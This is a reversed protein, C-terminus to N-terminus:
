PIPVLGAISAILRKFGVSEFAVDVVEEGDQIRSQLVLGEGWLPHQVRTGAAFRAQPAALGSSTGFSQAQSSPASVSRLGRGSRSRGDLLHSPIDELFRSPITEERYDRSGRQLARVLYLREKARTIGVYFLRREEEMSEPDSFSRSHPLLGDDLGVLFVVAFELGKAAHLTLLTPADNNTITDQDSVLAINELFEELTRTEYERTLRRLEQVNEWRDMGEETGDNIYERYNLDTLIREFLEPLTTTAALARWRALTAGFDALLVVSRGSFAQWYTSASGRALDLLVQGPSIGAQRAVTHLALLTRDGIGRPPINIVRDLSVIDDPNHVLRLFAILDKIERRGYFRQAGVLRYPLRMQLFAEELLRSQANTRYMIAIEGPPFQRSTLLNAVTEAVFSAEEYDDRAEYYYIKEGQGRESYLRRPRHTQSHRIVASAADLINQRSRYNQELLIIQVDPFDQEFRRINRYDAGRWRYISQDPDGVAFLNRHISALHRLLTYQALNTDQFEDVLIHRFRRAYKERVEPYESLLYAMWLLLDDFDVANSQRLMEQYRRYIRQIVQDRYNQTPYDDPFLLENKARSIAAHVAAPRYTKEDLNLERIVNKIVREQDDTDFIVFNSDLPLYTSERRLIRACLAHFTGLSMGNLASPGLLSQLREQMERAAKNTFTVAMIEWPRVGRAHLLYAIRHTLVRTKGSGPGAIVLIPGDGATVAQVQQPNLSTLWDM